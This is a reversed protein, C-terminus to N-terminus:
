SPGLLVETHLHDGTCLSRTLQLGAPTSRAVLLARGTYVARAGIPALSGPLIAEMRDRPAQLPLSWGLARLVPAGHECDVQLDLLPLEAAPAPDTTLRVARRVPGCDGGLLVRHADVRTMGLPTCGSLVEDARAYSPDMHISYATTAPAEGSWSCLAYYFHGRLAALSAAGARCPQPVSLWPEQRGKAVVGLERFGFGTCPGVGSEICESPGSEFLMRLRGDPAGALAIHGRAATREGPTGAALLTPEAKPAAGAPELVLARTRTRTASSEIWGVALRGGGEAIALEVVEDATEVLTRQPGRPDGLTGLARLLIRGRRDHAPAWALWAGHEALALDFAADTSPEIPALVAESTLPASAPARAARGEHQGRHGRSCALLSAAALVLGAPLRPGARARSPPRSRPAVAVM